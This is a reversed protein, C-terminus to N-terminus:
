LQRVIRFGRTESCESFSAYFCTAEAPTSKWSGGRMPPSLVLGLVLSLGLILGLVQVLGLIHIQVQVQVQIRGLFFGLLLFLGVGLIFGLGLVFGLILGLGLIEGTDSSGYYTMEWVNGSLDSVGYSSEGTPYSGVATPKGIGAKKANCKHQDFQNGWPYWWIQPGCAALEWEWELPLRYKKATQNSLWTCFAEADKRYIAVVPHQAEEKPFLGAVWHKPPKHGTATVFHSYELNTIPYKGIEFAPMLKRWSIVRWLIFCACRLNRAWLSLKQEWAQAKKLDPLALVRINHAPIPVMIPKPVSFRSEGSQEEIMEAM